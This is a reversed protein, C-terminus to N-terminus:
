PWCDSAKSPASIPATDNEPESMAQALSSPLIFLLMRKLPWFTTFMSTSSAVSATPKQIRVPSVSQFIVTNKMPASSNPTSIVIGIPPASM